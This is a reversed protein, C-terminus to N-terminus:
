EDTTANHESPHEPQIIGGSMIMAMAEQRTLDVTTIEEEAVIILFGSTPNPTTPIFVNFFAKGKKPSIYDPLKSTLFGISFVGDRPFPVMVVRQFSVKDQTTLAQMLQKTGSYIPRVLPIKVLLTEFTSVLSRTIFLKLLSGVAVIGILIILIEVYPIKTVLDPCTGQLTCRLPRLIWEHIKNISITFITITITLPAIALLGNLFLSWLTQLLKNFFRKIINM